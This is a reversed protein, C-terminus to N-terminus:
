YQPCFKELDWCILATIYPSFSLTRDVRQGFYQVLSLMSFWWPEPKQFSKKNIGGGRGCKQFEGSSDNEEWMKRTVEFAGGGAWLRGM